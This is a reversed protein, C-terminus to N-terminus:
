LSRNYNRPFVRATFEIESADALRLTVEIGRSDSSWSSETVEGGWGDYHIYTLAFYHVRDTLISEDLYLPDGAAGSWSVTHTEEGNSRQGRYTLSTATANTVSNIVVFEKALRSLVMQATQATEGNRGALVFGTVIQTLGMGTISIFLGTLVLSVLIELLTIGREGCHFRRSRDHNRGCQKGQM